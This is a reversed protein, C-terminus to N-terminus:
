HATIKEQIETLAQLFDEARQFRQRPDKTIARSLVEDFVEPLELYLLSPPTPESHVIKYALAALSEGVFPRKGTLLEYFVVGLSFIDARGDIDHGEIQEPAMYSPTGVVRGTATLTFHDTVKAIGFDTVKIEDDGVILINSPKIDRHVIGEAHAFQLAECVNTVINLSRPPDLRKEKDMLQRLNPGEVYEMVIYSFTPEDDVDHVIVINPHNLKAATKAERHVRAKLKIIDEDSATLSYSVTKIVVTRDLKPDWAKYVRGVAGRGIEKDIIYRGIKDISAQSVKINGIASSEDFDTAATAADSLTPDMVESDQDQILALFDEDNQQIMGSFSLDDTVEQAPADDRGATDAAASDQPQAPEEAGAAEQETAEVNQAQTAAVDDPPSVAEIAEHTDSILADDFPMAAATQEAPLPEQPTETAAVPEPEPEPAPISATAAVQKKKRAKRTVVILIGLFALGALVAIPLVPWSTQPRRGVVEGTPNATVAAHGPPPEVEGAPENGVAAHPATPAAGAIAALSSDASEDAVLTDIGAHTSEIAARNDLDSNSETVAAGAPEIAPEAAPKAPPAKAASAKPTADAVNPKAQAPARRQLQAAADAKLAASDKYNGPLGSLIAVVGAWDGRNKAALAKQYQRERDARAMLREAERNGKDRVLVQQLLVIASDPQQVGLMAEAQQLHGAVFMKDEVKRLSERADPFNPNIELATKYAQRAAADDGLNYRTVGLNYWVTAETAKKRIGLALAKEYAAAAEGFRSVGHYANGLNIYFLANTSDLEIAHRSYRIAAAADGAALNQLAAKNYAITLFKDLRMDRAFKPENQLITEFHPIVAAFKGAKYLDRALAYRAELFSPYTQVIDTLLAIRENANSELMAANYFALSDAKGQGFVIEAFSLVAVLLAFGRIKKAFTSM